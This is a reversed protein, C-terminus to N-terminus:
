DLHIARNESFQFEKTYKPNYSYVEDVSTMDQSRIRELEAKVDEHQQVYVPYNEHDYTDCAVIMHTSASLKGADYWGMLEQKTASM